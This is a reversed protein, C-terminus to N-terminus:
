EAEAHLKKFKSSKKDLEDFDAETPLHELGSNIYNRLVGVLIFPRVFASHIFSWFFIGCIASTAITLGTIDSVFEPLNIDADAAVELIEQSLGAFFDPFNMLILFFIGTFAGGIVLFSLIGMGFVRGLNKALTKGHKFFLVAGELTAKTAKENDRYFVWGLCCDCLYAVITQIVGSIASGITGGTDGGIAEGVATIGRGIQEFIGKIVGTIAFYAAVTSFRDKVIKKGAAIVDDPLKDDTIAKTMMAIQGAKYSYSVYRSIFYMVIGGLILGVLLGILGNNITSEAIIFGLVIIAIFIILSIIDWLLRRFSFGITEKYIQKNDM